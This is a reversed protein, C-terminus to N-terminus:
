EGGVRFSMISHEKKTQEDNKFYILGGLSIGGAKPIFKGRAPLTQKSVFIVNMASFVGAAFSSYKVL